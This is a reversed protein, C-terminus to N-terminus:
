IRNVILSPIKSEMRYSWHYTSKISYTDGKQTLEENQLKLNDNPSIFQIVDMHNIFFSNTNHESIVESCKLFCLPKKRYSYLVNGRAIKWNSFKRQKRDISEREYINETRMNSSNGLIYELLCDHHGSEMLWNFPNFIFDYFENELQKDAILQENKLWIAMRQSPNTYPLILHTCLSKRIWLRVNLFQSFSLQNMVLIVHHSSPQIVTLQNQKVRIQDM